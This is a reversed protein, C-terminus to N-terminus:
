VVLRSNAANSVLPGASFNPMNFMQALNKYASIDGGMSATMSKIASQFQAFKERTMPGGGPVSYQNMLNVANVLFDFGKGMGKGGTAAKMRNLIGLAENARAPNLYQFRENTLKTPIPAFQANAYGGFVDKFNTALYNAMTRQDEPSLTPLIANAANAFAQEETPNAYAKNVWWPPTPSTPSTPPQGPYGQNGETYPGGGPGGTGTGPTGGQTYPGGGPMPTKGQGPVYDPTPTRGQGPVYAGSPQGPGGPPIFPGSPIHPVSGSPQGGTFIPVTSLPSGSGPVQPRPTVAPTTPANPDTRNNLNGAMINEWKGVPIYKGKYFRLQQEYAVNHSKNWKYADTNRPDTNKPNGSPM